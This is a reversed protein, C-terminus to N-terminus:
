SYLGNMLKKSTRLKWLDPKAADKVFWPQQDHARREKISYLVYTEFVRQTVETIQYCIESPVTSSPFRFRVSLCFFNVFSNWNCLHHWNECPETVELFNTEISRELLASISIQFPELHTTFFMDHSKFWLFLISSM